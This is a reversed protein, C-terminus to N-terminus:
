RRQFVKTKWLLRVRVNVKEQINEFHPQMAVEIHSCYPM